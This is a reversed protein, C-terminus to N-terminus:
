VKNFKICDTAHNECLRYVNYATDYEISNQEKLLSNQEAILENQKELLITQRRLERSSVLSAFAGINPSYTTVDWSNDITNQREFIKDNLTGLTYYEQPYTVTLAAVPIVLVALTMIVICIWLIHKSM